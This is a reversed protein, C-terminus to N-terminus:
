LRVIRLNDFERRTKYRHFVWEFERRTEYYHALFSYCFLEKTTSNEGHKTVIHQFVWELTGFCNERRTQVVLEFIGYVIGTANQLSTSSFEHSHTLFCWAILLILGNHKTVIHQFLRSFTEFAGRQVYFKNTTSQSSTRSFSTLRISWYVGQFVYFNSWRTQSSFERSEKLFM